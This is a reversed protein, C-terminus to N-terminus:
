RGAGLGRRLSSAGGGGVSAVWEQNSLYWSVTEHLGSEFTENASWGLETKIRTADIAYRFDHGPRDTM